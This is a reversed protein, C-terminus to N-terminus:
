PGETHCNTNMTPTVSDLVMQSISRQACIHSILKVVNTSTPLGMKDAPLLVEQAPFAPRRLISFLAPTCHVHNMRESSTSQTLYPLQKLDRSGESEEGSPSYRSWGGM